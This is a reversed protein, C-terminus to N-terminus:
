ALASWAAARARRVANRRNWDKTKWHKLPQRRSKAKAIEADHHHVPKWAM